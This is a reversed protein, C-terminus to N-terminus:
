IPVAGNIDEIDHEHNTESLEYPHVTFGSSDWGIRILYPHLNADPNLMVTDLMIHFDFKVASGNSNYIVNAWPCVYDGNGTYDLKARIHKGADAAEVADSFSQDFQVQMTQPNASGTIWFTNDEYDEIDDISHTHGEVSVNSGSVTLTNFSGSSKSVTTNTIGSVIGSLNTVDAIAHKHGNQSFNQTAASVFEGLGDIDSASHTHGELSVASGNVTIDSAEISSFNLQDFSTAAYLDSGRYIRKTDSTFYLKNEKNALGDFDSQTLYIFQIQQAM